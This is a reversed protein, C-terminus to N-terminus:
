CRCVDVPLLECFPQKCYLDDGLITVHQYRGAHSEIWRKAAVQECGQQDHGDQPTISEPELPIAQAKGSRCDGVAPLKAGGFSLILIATLECVPKVSGVPTNCLILLGSFHM